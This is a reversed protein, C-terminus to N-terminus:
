VYNKEQTLLVPIKSLSAIVHTPTFGILEDYPTAGTTVAITYRCGANQGELIDVVTDGVAIDGNAFAKRFAKAVYDKDAVTTGAGDFVAFDIMAINKQLYFSAVM